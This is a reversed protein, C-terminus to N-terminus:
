ATGDRALCCSETWISECGPVGFTRLLPAPSYSKITIFDQGCPVESLTSKPPTVGPPDAGTVLLIDIKLQIYSQFVSDNSIITQGKPSPTSLCLSTPMVSTTSPPDATSVMPAVTPNKIPEDDKPPEVNCEKQVTLPFQSTKLDGAVGGIVEGMSDTVRALPGHLKIAERLERRWEPNM